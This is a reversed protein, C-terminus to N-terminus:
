EKTLVRYDSVIAHLRTYDLADLTADFILM